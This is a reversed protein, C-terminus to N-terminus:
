SRFRSDRQEDFRQESDHGFIEADHLPERVGVNCLQLRQELFLDTIHGVTGAGVRAAVHEFCMTPHLDAFRFEIREDLIELEGHRLERNRVAGLVLQQRLQSRHM